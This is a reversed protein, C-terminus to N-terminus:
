LVQIVCQLNFCEFYYCWLILKQLFYIPVCVYFASTISILESTTPESVKFEQVTTPETEVQPSEVSEVVTEAIEAEM